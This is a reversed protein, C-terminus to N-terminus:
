AVKTTPKNTSDIFFQEEFVLSKPICFRKEWLDRVDGELSLPSRKMVLEKQFVMLDGCIGNSVHVNPRILKGGWRACAENVKKDVRLNAAMAVANANVFFEVSIGTLLDKMSFDLNGKRAIPHVTFNSSVIIQSGQPALQSLDEASWYSFYSDKSFDASATNTWRFFCLGLCIEEHMIAGIYDQRTFADSYLPNSFKMEKYADSWVTDWCGYISEYLNQFKKEPHSGPCVVYRLKEKRFISKIM